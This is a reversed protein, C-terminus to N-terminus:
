TRGSVGPLPFAEHPAQNLRKLVRLLEPHDALRGGKYQWSFTLQGEWDSRQWQAIMGTLEAATPWRWQAYSFAQLMGMYRTVGAARLRSLAYPIRSWDCPKGVLCPYVDVSMVDAAGRFAAFQNPDDVNVVTFRRTDPDLSRVLASRARVEVAARPCNLNTNPEDAVFYGAIRSSRALGYRAFREKVQADTWHWRCRVKDYGGLWVLARQDTTIKAVREPTVDVLSYGYRVTVPDATNLAVSRFEAGREGRGTQCSLTLAVLLVAM